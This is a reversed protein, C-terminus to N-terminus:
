KNSIEGVKHHTSHAEKQVQQRNGSEPKRKESRVFAPGRVLAHRTIGLYGLKLHSPTRKITQRETKRRLDLRLTYIRRLRRVRTTVIIICLIM